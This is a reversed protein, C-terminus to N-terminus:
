HKTLKGIKWYGNDLKNLNITAVNKQVIEEITDYEGNYGLDLIVDISGDSKLKHSGYVYEECYAIFRIISETECETLVCCKNVSDYYWYNYESYISTFDYTCGLVDKSMSELDKIPVSVSLSDGNTKAYKSNQLDCFFYLFEFVNEPAINKRDSNLIGDRYGGTVSYIDSWVLLDIINAVEDKDYQKTVTSGSSASNTSSSQTKSSSSSSTIQTKSSSSQASSASSESSTDTDKSATSVSSDTVSNIESDTNSIGSTKSIASSTTNNSAPEADSCAIINLVFVSLLMLCLIRKM